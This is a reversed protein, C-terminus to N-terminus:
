KIKLKEWRQQGGQVPLKYIDMYSGPNKNKARNVYDPQGNKMEFKNWSKLENVYKGEPVFCDQPIAEKKLKPNSWLLKVCVQGMVETLAVKIDYKKGAELLITAEYDTPAQEKWADILLRDGLWMRAGDDATLYITYTESTKPAIQGAWIMSCLDAPLGDAPAKSGWDFNLCTDVKEITKGRFTMWEFYSAYLGGAWSGTEATDSDNFEKHFAKAKVALPRPLTIPESYLTSDESPESGDLTYRIEATETSCTIKVPKGPEFMGGDPSFFPTATRPQLFREKLKAQRREEVEIAKKELAVKEAKLVYEDEDFVLETYKKLFEGSLQKMYDDRLGKIPLGTEYMTKFSESYRAKADKDAIGKFLRTIEVENIAPYQTIIEELLKERFELKKANYNDKGLKVHLTRLKKNEDKSFKSLSTSDVDIVPVNTSGIKIYKGDFSYFKGKAVGRISNLTVEDGEKYLPFKVEAEADFKATDMVPYASMKENYIKLGPESLNKLTIVPGAYSGVSILFVIVSLIFIANKIKM